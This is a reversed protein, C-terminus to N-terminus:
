SESYQWVEHHQTSHRKRTLGPRAGCPARLVPWLQPRPNPTVPDPLMSPPTANLTSHQTHLSSCRGSANGWAAPEQGGAVQAGGGVAQGSVGGGGGGGGGGGAGECTSGLMPGQDRMCRTIRSPVGAALSLNMAEVHRVAADAAGASAARDASTSPLPPADASCTPPQTIAPPIAASCAPQGLSPCAPQCRVNDVMCCLHGVLTEGHEETWHLSEHRGAEM